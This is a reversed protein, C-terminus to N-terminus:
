ENGMQARLTQLARFQLQKIAGESRELAAAIEKISKEEAFRMRVVRRQDDALGDVLRFLRAWQECDVLDTQQTEKIPRSIAPFESEDISTGAQRAEQKGRDAILNSGIRLLWAAFPAGTWKFRPLNALAKHFIESTLDEARARDRTRRAVYAYVLEFYKEYM